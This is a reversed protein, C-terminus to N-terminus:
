WGQQNLQQLDNGNGGGAAELRHHLVLSTVLEEREEDEAEEQLAAGSRLILFRQQHGPTSPRLLVTKAAAKSYRQLNKERDLKWRLPARRKM